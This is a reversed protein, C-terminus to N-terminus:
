LRGFLNLPESFNVEDFNVIDFGVVDVEFKDDVDDRVNTTTSDHLIMKQSATRIAPKM